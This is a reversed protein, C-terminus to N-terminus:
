ALSPSLMIPYLAFPPDSFDDLKKLAKKVKTQEDTTLQAYRSPVDSPDNARPVLMKLAEDVEIQEEATPKLTDALRTWTAKMDDQEVPSLGKIDYRGAWDFDILKVEENADFMVNPERLDGFVYGNSRLKELVTAIKERIQVLDGLHPKSWTIYEMVVMKMEPAAAPGLGQYGGNMPRQYAPALESSDYITKEPLPGYYLLQPAHGEEALFQHVEAGYRDVFKVVVKKGTGKIRALYIVCRMDRELRGLYEFVVLNGDISIFSNPYPFHRPHSDGKVSFNPIKKTTVVFEYYNELNRLSNRLALLVKAVQYVRHEEHTTGFGIWMMDTLRQVVFRNIFVGGLVCLWPGGGALMFIPCCCTDVISKSKREGLMNRMLNGALIIPDYGGEGLTPRFEADGEYNTEVPIDWELLKRLCHQLDKSSGLESNSMDCSRTMFNRISTLFNSDPTVSPDNSDRTFQWFIPHYIHVPPAVTNPSSKSPAYLGDYIIDHDVSHDKGYGASTSNSSPPKIGRIRSYTKEFDSNLNDDSPLPSVDDEGEGDEGKGPVQVLLVEDESIDLDAISIGQRLAIAKSNDNFDIEDITRTLDILAADSRLKSVISRWVVLTDHNLHGIIKPSGEQASKALDKISRALTAAPGRIPRMEHDVTVYWVAGTAEVFLTENDLVRLDQLSSRTSPKRVQQNKFYAEVKTELGDMDRDIFPMEPNTCRWVDIRSFSDPACTAALYERIKSELLIITSSEPLDVSFLRDYIPRHKANILIFWITINPDTSTM